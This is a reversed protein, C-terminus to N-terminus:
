GTNVGGINYLASGVCCLGSILMEVKAVAVVAGNFFLPDEHM